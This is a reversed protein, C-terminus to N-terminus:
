EKQKRKAARYRRQYATQNRRMCPKCYRYGDEKFSFPGGCIPCESKRSNQAGMSNSTNALCNERPTATRLHDVNCCLRVGCTHDIQLGEAIPGRYHEWVARHAMVWRNDLRVQGYGNWNKTGVWMHCGTTQNIVIQELVRDITNRRYLGGCERGCFRREAFESRSRWRNATFTKGCRECVKSNNEIFEAKQTRRYTWYCEVSCYIQGHPRNPNCEFDQKCSRCTQFPM